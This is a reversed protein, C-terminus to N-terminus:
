HGQAREAAQQNLWPEIRRSQEDWEALGDLLWMPQSRYDLAGRYPYAQQIAAVDLSEEEAADM